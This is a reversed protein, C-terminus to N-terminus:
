TAEIGNLKAAHSADVEVPLTGQNVAAQGHQVYWDHVRTYAARMSNLTGDPKTLQDWFEDAWHGFQPRLAEYSDALQHGYAMLESGYAIHQQGYAVTEEPNLAFTYNSESTM